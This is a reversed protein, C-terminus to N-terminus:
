AAGKMLGKEVLTARIENVLTVIGDAQAQTAFGWPTTQTSATTTVAAQAAGSRQVVPTSNHFALKETTATGIKSGTTTGLTMNIADVLSFATSSLTARSTFQTRFNIIKGATTAELILDQASNSLVTSGTMKLDVSDLQFLSTSLRMREVGSLTWGIAGAGLSFMGDTPAGFMAYPPTTASGAFTPQIQTPVSLFNSSNIYPMDIYTDGAANLQQMWSVGNTGRRFKTGVGFDWLATTSTTLLQVPVSGGKGTITLQSLRMSTQIDDTSHSAWVSFPRYIGGDTAYIAIHREFGPVGGILWRSEFEDAMGPLAADLRGAVSMNPGWRTVHNDTGDTNAATFIHHNFYFNSFGTHAYDIMAFAEPTFTQRAAWTNATDLWGPTRLSWATGGSNVGITQHATPATAGISTALSFGLTNFIPPIANM